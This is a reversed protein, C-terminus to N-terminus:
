QPDFTSVILVYVGPSLPLCSTLCSSLSSSYKGGATELIPERLAKLNLTNGPIPFVGSQIRYLQGACSFKFNDPDRVLTSGNFGVEASIMLRFFVRTDEQRVKICYAPNQDFTGFNRCGGSNNFDWEDSFIRKVMGQGEDPLQRLIM